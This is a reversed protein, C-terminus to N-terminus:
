EPMGIIEVLLDFDVPKSIHHHFGSARSRERDHQQGYGSAAIFVSDQFHGEERLMAAVDYGSLGPLGIDLLFVQPRFKRAAEIAANGDHAIEVEHGAMRLLSAMGIATDVSDDVVLIRKASPEGAPRPKAPTARANAKIAPPRVSFESGLGLGGSSAEVTGGHMEVLKKVVSLGIGLGGRARDLSKEAQTFLEFVSDLLEPAIGIGNDGVKIVVSDREPAATVTIKGGPDTYKAANTILNTVIQELRTPDANVRIQGTALSVNLEHRKAEILHSVAEVAKAIVPGVHLPEKQLQIKGQNIRSIDLLDDIMISLNKVQRRHGGEVM